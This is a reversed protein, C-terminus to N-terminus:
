PASSAQPAAGAACPAPEVAVAYVDFFCPDDLDPAPPQGIFAAFATNPRPFRATITVPNRFPPLCALDVEQREGGDDLLGVLTPRPTCATTPDCDSAGERCAAFHGKVAVLVCAADPDPQTSAGRWQVDALTAASGPCGAPAKAAFRDSFAACGVGVTRSASPALAPCDTEEAECLGTTQEVFDPLTTALSVGCAEDIPIAGPELALRLTPYAPDAIGEVRGRAVGGRGGLGAEVEVEVATGSAFVANLTRPADRLRWHDEPPANAEDVVPAAFWAADHRDACTAGADLPTEREVEDAPFFCGRVEGGDGRAIVTLHDFLHRPDWLEAALGIEVHVGGESAAPAEDGCGSAVVVSLVCVVAPLPSRM